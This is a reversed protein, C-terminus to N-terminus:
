KKKLKMAFGGGQAMKINWNSKATNETRIIHDTADKDANIGDFAYEIQYNSIDEIFDLSISIERSNWNTQGAVYWDNDLRRAIVIYEGIEGDIVKM